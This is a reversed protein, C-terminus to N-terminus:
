ICIFSCKSCISIVFSCSVSAVCAVTYKGANHHSWNRIHGMMVSKWESKNMHICTEQIVTNIWVIHWLVLQLNSSSFCWLAGLTFFWRSCCQMSVPGNNWGVVIGAVEKLNLNICGVSSVVWICSPTVTPLSLDFNNSLIDVKYFLISVGVFVTCLNYGIPRFLFSNLILYQM